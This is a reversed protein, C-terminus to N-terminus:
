LTMTINRQEVQAVPIIIKNEDIFLRFRFLYNQFNNIQVLIFECLKTSLIFTTAM